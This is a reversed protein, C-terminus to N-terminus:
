LEERNKSKSGLNGQVIKELKSRREKIDGLGATPNSEIWNIVSDVEEHIVKKENESLQGKDRIMNKVSYAFGELDNKADVTEKVRKDNEAFKEADKKMQEIEERSLSKIKKNIKIKIKIGTEKEKASVTLISNEDIYFFVEVKLFAQSLKPIDVMGLTGLLLNEKSTTGEGEYIDVAMSSQDDEATVFIHSKEVPLHANRPILEKLTKNITEFWLTSPNVDMLLVDSFQDAGSMVAGQVAAGYAASEDPSIGRKPELGNFFNKVLQQIKPIRTSGGVLIIEDVNSRKMDGDKLVKEIVKDISQFLKMNIEEFRAKTLTYVFDEFNVLNEVEILAENNYSLMRKAKEVERRLKQMSRIYKSIDTGTKEKHKMILFNMVQQTFIEGGVHTDGGTAVVEFIGQDVNLLSVDFTSAGMNIVLVSRETGRNLLGYAMASATPENLIRKVDLGAIKGADKTAQRQAKNFSAPVTIVAKTVKRKLYSESLEKMKGLVMASIEEPAFERVEEGVLVQIYVKDNKGTVNYPYYHVDKTFFPDNWNRGIFRKVDFITNTPNSTLQNLASDGILREGNVNFAVYSPTISNGQENPIIEVDGDKFIGVCSYTTGLDIGIIPESGDNPDSASAELALLFLVVLSGIM